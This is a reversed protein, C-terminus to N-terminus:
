PHGLAKVRAPTAEFISPTLPYPQDRSDRVAQERAHALFSPSAKASWMILFDRNPIAAYFPSGLQKAVSARFQPSLLRVADYGDNVGVAVFPDPGTSPQLPVGQSIGDLNDFAVANVQDLAVGWREIDKVLVYAYTDPRDLVFGLVLGEGFPLHALPMRDLYEAPMLQPRLLRQAAEWTPPPAEAADAAAFGAAFHEKVLLHLTADTPNEDSTFKARLNQLGFETSGYKLVEPDPTTVIKKNPFEAALVAVVRDRFNVPTIQVGSSKSPSCASCLLLCTLVTLQRLSRRLHEGPVNCGGADAALTALGSCAPTLHPPM